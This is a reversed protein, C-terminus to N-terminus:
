RRTLTEASQYLSSKTDEYKKIEKPQGEPPIKDYNDWLTYYIHSPHDKVGEKPITDLWDYQYITRYYNAAPEFLAHTAMSVHDPLQRNTHRRAVEQVISRTHKDYFWMYCHDLNATRIFHFILITGALISTILLPIKISNTPTANKWACLGSYATVSYLLLFYVAMRDTPLPTELLLHQAMVCGVTLLLLMSCLAFFGTKRTKIYTVIGAASLIIGSVLLFVILAERVCQGYDTYYLSCDALSGITDKIFGEKGGFYFEGRAKLRFSERLAFIFLFVYGGAFTLITYRTIKGYGNKRRDWLIFGLLALYPLLVNLMSLNGLIAIIGGTTGTGVYQAAKKDTLPGSQGLGYLSIVMGMLGALAWSYGRALSFFDLLFPNLFILAFGALKILFRSGRQVLWIGGALYLAMALLSGSRLSLEGPGTISAFFSMLWTNLYHHNPTAARAEDGLVITYSLSEDHTFSVGKARLWAYAWLLVGAVIWLLWDQQRKNM